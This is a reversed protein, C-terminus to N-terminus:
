LFTPHHLSVGSRNAGFLRLSIDYLDQAYRLIQGSDLQVDVWSAEMFEPVRMSVVGNNYLTVAELEYDHITLQWTPRVSTNPHLHHRHHLCLVTTSSYVVCYPERTQIGLLGSPLDQLHLISWHDRAHALVSQAFARRCDDHIIKIDQNNKQDATHDWLIWGNDIAIQQQCVACLFPM